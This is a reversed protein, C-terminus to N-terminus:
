RSRLRTAAATPNGEDMVAHCCRASYTKGMPPHSGAFLPPHPVILGAAYRGVSTLRDSARGM